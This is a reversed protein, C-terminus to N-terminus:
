TAPGSVPPCLSNLPLLSADIATCDLVPPAANGVVLSACGDASAWGCGADSAKRNRSMLSAGVALGVRLVAAAVVVAVAMTRTPRYRHCPHKLGNPCPPGLVRQDRPAPRWLAPPPCSKRVTWLRESTEMAIVSVALAGSYGRPAANPQSRIAALVGLLRILHLRPRPVQAALCPMFALPVSVRHTTRRRWLSQLKLVVQGTANTQVRANALAARQTDRSVILLDATAVSRSARQGRLTMSPPTPVNHLSCPALSKRQHVPAWRGTGALWEVFILGSGAPLDM